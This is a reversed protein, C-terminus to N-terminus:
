KEESVKFDADVVKANKDAKKTWKTWFHEKAPKEEKPENNKKAMLPKIVYKDIVLITGGVLIAAGGIIGVRKLDVKTLDTVETVEEVAETLVENNVTNEM